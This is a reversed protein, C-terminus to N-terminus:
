TALIKGAGQMLIKRPDTPYVAPCVEISDLHNAVEPNLKVLQTLFLGHESAISSLSDGNQVIYTSVSSERRSLSEWFRLLKPAFMSPERESGSTIASSGKSDCRVIASFPATSSCPNAHKSRRAVVRKGTFRTLLKSSQADGQFVSKHRTYGNLKPQACRLSLSAYWAVGM